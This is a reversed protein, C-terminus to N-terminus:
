IKSTSSLFMDNLTKAVSVINTVDIYRADQGYM